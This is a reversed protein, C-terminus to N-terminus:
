PKARVPSVMAEGGEDDPRLAAQASELGYQAVVLEEELLQFSELQHATAVAAEELEVELEFRRKRLAEMAVRLPAPIEGKGKVGNTTCDLALSTISGMGFSASMMRSTTDTSGKKSTGPHRPSPVDKESFARSMDSAPATSRFLGQLALSIKPKKQEPIERICSEVTAAGADGDRQTSAPTVNTNTDNHTPSNHQHQQQQQQLQKVSGSRPNPDRYQLPLEEVRLAWLAAASVTISDLEARAADVQATCNQLCQQVRRLSVVTKEVRTTWRTLAEHRPSTPDVDAAAAAEAAKAADTAAKKSVSKKAM